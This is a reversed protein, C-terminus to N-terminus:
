GLSGEQEQFAQLDDLNEDIALLARPPQATFAPTARGPGSHGRHIARAEVSDSEVRAVVPWRLEQDPMVAVDLDAAVAAPKGADCPLVHVDGFHADSDADLLTTGCRYGIWEYM